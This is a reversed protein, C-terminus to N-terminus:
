WTIEVGCAFAAILYIVLADLLISGFFISWNLAPMSRHMWQPINSSDAVQKILKVDVAKM